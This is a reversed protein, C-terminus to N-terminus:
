PLVVITEKLGIVAWLADIGGDSIAICGATWDSTGGGGHIEVLGGLATTQPPETCGNQANIINTRETSSIEGLAYAREADEIEPYSLLFAKYYSSTPVLRAVYFVGEPTRGDGERRKDGAPTFGLGVEWSSVASGQNCLALNRASKNVVIYDDPTADCPSLGAAWVAACDAASVSSDWAPRTYDPWCTDDADCVYSEQTRCQGDQTCSKLCATLDSAEFSFCESGSPCRAWDCMTMVCYGNPLDMCYLHSCDSPLMCSEGIDFPRPPEDPWGQPEWPLCVPFITNPQGYRQRLVCIYGTRCGTPSKTFDCQSVCRALSTGTDICRSITNMTTPGYDTDPCIWVEGSQSCAQSCMGEPFGDTLCIPASNTCDTPLSCAGGIWGPNLNAGEPPPGIEEGTDPPTDAAVDSPLDAADAADMQQDPDAADPDQTVVDQVPLDVPSPDSPLDFPADPEQQGADAQPDEEGPLDTGPARDQRWTDGPGLDRDQSGAPDVSPCAVLWISLIILSGRM